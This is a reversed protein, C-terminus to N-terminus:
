HGFLYRSDVSIIQPYNKTNEQLQFILITFADVLDDHEGRTGFGVLQEILKECGTEPFLIIGLEILAAVAQLRGEKTQGRIPYPRAPIGEAKLLDVFMGQFGVDEVYVRSPVGNGLARSIGSARTIVQEMTLRENVPNPMIYYKREKTAGFVKGSVMATYDASKKQSRAPDIATAMARFRANPGSPLESYYKIWERKIIQDESQVIKLLYERQWALINFCKAKEDEIDQETAFKGPWACAGEENLIPFRRFVNKPNGVEFIKELRMLLSDEHLPTGIFVMRTGRDGAPLVDGTLWDFLKDRNEQTRVSDPDELDDCIIVDPRHENHRIGRISQEVSGIAIRAGYEPLILATAGWQNSEEKFPGLDRRLNDNQELVHKIAQLHNQAKSQTRGLILPFKKQQSGLISWIV